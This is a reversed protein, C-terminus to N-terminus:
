PLFKNLLKTFKAPIQQRFEVYNHESIGTYQDIYYRLLRINHYTVKKGNTM